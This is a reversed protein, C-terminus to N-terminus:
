EPRIGIPALVTLLLAVAPYESVVEANQSSIIDVFINQLRDVLKQFLGDRSQGKMRKDAQAKCFEKLSAALIDLM